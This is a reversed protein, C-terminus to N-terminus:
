ARYQPLHLPRPLSTVSKNHRPTISLPNGHTSRPIESRNTKDAHQSRAPGNTPKLGSMQDQPCASGVARALDRAYRDGLIYSHEQMARANRLTVDLFPLGANRAVTRCESVHVTVLVKRPKGTSVTFPTAPKSSVWLGASTQTIREVTVPPGSATSVTVTFDFSDDATVPRAPAGYALVVAQSPWPTPPPPPPTPRSMYLYSAGAALIGALAGGVVAPRHRAAFDAARGHALRLPSPASAGDPAYTGDGPEVPGVGSM